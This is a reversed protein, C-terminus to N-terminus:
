SCGGHSPWESLQQTAEKRPTLHVRPEEQLHRWMSFSPAINTGAVTLAIEERWPIRRRGLSTGEIQGDDEVERDEEEVRRGTLIKRPQAGPFDSASLLVDHRVKSEGGELGAGLIMLGRGDLMLGDLMLVGGPRVDM